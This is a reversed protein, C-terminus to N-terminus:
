RKKIDFSTRNIRLDLLRDSSPVGYRVMAKKRLTFMCQGNSRNVAPNLIDRLKM